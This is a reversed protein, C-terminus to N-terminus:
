VDWAAEYKTFLQKAPEPKLTQFFEHLKDVRM